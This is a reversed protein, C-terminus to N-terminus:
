AVSFPIALNLHENVKTASYGYCCFDAISTVEVFNM